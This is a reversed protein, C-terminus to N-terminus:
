CIQYQDGTMQVPRVWLYGRFFKSYLYSVITDRKTDSIFAQFLASVNSNYVRVLCM